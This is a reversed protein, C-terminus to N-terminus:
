PRSATTAREGPGQPSEEHPAGLVGHLDPLTTLMAKLRERGQDLAAASRDQYPLPTSLHVLVVTGGQRALGGLIQAWRMPWYDTAWHDGIRYAYWDLRNLRSRQEEEVIEMVQAPQRVADAALLRPTQKLMRWGQSRYCYRPDDVDRGQGGWHVMLLTDVLGPNPPPSWARGAQIEAGQGLTRTMEGVANALLPGDVSVWGTPNPWVPVVGRPQHPGPVLAADLLLLALAILPLLPSRTTLPPIVRPTTPHLRFRRWRGAPLGLWLLLVAVELVILLPAGIQEVWVMAAEPHGFHGLVVAGILRLTNGPLILVLLLPLVGLRHWRDGWGSGLLWVAVTLLAALSRLGSCTEEVVLRFRGSDLIIGEQLVPLGLTDLVWRAASASWEQLPLALSQVVGWPWPIALLTFLLPFAVPAFRTPGMGWALWGICGTAWGLASLTDIRAQTALSLLLVGGVLLSNITLTWVERQHPSFDPSSRGQKQGPSGRLWRATAVGLGWLVVV